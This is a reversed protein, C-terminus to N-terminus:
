LENTCDFETGYPSRVNPPPVKEKDISDALMPLYTVFSDEAEAGLNRARATIEVWAWLASSAPYILEFYGSGKVDTTLSGGSLTALGTAPTIPALLAPDQPDLSGNNNVDEGTDLVRNGNGDESACEHGDQRWHDASWSGTQSESALLGASNVLKMTGKLYSIPRISLTVDAGELAGGSGDGVQVTFPLSYQTDEAESGLINSTGITVNIQRKVVTLNMKDAISTGEVEATLEIENFETPLAGALFNVEALGNSKTRASAPSLQGGKLDASSFVVDMNKVPNGNADTVFATITSPEGAFVRNSSADILVYKPTTAVFEVDLKNNPDGDDDAKVTVEAPGASNSTVTVIASGSADTNVVAASLLQGATIAFRLPQGVVPTGQRTWTVTVDSVSGVAFETSGSVSNFALFDDSIVFAHSDTVTNDLASVNITDSGNNSSVVVAARGAADTVVTAPTITNNALSTFTVEQNPIPNGNGATLSITMDLDNGLVLTEQGTISLESGGAKITVSEEFESARATVVFEKNQYDQKFKLTATVVGNENTVATGTVTGPDTIDQLSGGTSSFEVIQGAVPQNKETLVRVEINATDSGGTEIYNQDTTVVLNLATAVAAGLDPNGSIVSGDPGYQVQANTGGGVGEETRTGCASLMLSGAVLLCALNKMDM